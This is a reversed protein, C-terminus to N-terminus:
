KIRYFLFYLVIINSAGFVLTVIWSSRLIFLWKMRAYSNDVFIEFLYIICVAILGAFPNFGFFYKIFNQISVLFNGPIFLLNQISGEVNLNFFLVIFGLLYINEYWHALEIIGLTGGSYETTIGKVIEQHAHHSTSLDFPSKRLKITLIYVFGLFIAPLFLILPKSFVVIKSVEFSKTVIYMGIATLLVMPEYSMMQILEREAGVHSYPSNVSYAGLVLFINALTLSFIVLLIDGGSFFLIGTFIIFVFFIIIYLNQFRNVVIREKKFLKLVDYFPQLVPPGVRGQMKATIKRDIGALLGGLFPALIIYVLSNIIVKIM